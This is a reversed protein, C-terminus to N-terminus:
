LLVLWVSTVSIEMQSVTKNFTQNKLTITVQTGHGDKIIM